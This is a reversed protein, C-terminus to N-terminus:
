SADIRGGGNGTVQESSSSRLMFACLIVGMAIVTAQRASAPHADVPAAVGIPVCGDGGGIVSAAVITGVSISSGVAVDAAVLVSDGAESGICGVGVM